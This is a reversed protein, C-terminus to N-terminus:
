NYRYLTLSVRTVESSIEVSEDVFVKIQDSEFRPLDPVSSFTVTVLSTEDLTIDGSDSVRVFFQVETDAEVSAFFLVIYTHKWDPVWPVPLFNVWSNLNSCSKWVNQMWILYYWKWFKAHLAAVRKRRHRTHNGSALM